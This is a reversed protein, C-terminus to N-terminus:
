FWGKCTSTRAHACLSCTLRGNTGHLWACAAGLRKECCDTKLCLFTGRRMERTITKPELVVGGFQAMSHELLLATELQIIEQAFYQGIRPHRLKSIIQQRKWVPINKLYLLERSPYGFATDRVDDFVEDGGVLLFCTEKCLQNGFETKGTGSPGFLMHVVKDISSQENSIM